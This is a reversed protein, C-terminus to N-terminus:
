SKKKSADSFNIDNDVQKKFPSIFGNRLVNTILVWIKTKPDNLDGEIPIKTAFTDKPKNKLVFGFFGIIGEWVHKVLNSHPQGATDQLKIDSFMPKFYGKLYGKNIAFESFFNFQGKTFDFGAISRSADNLATVNSNRLALNVDMDPIENLLNMNATVDLSGNGFSKGHLQLTSPLVKSRDVVNGMNTAVLRIDKVSLDIDPSEVIDAYLFQGDEVILRNITIPVLKKLATTWDNKQPTEEKSLTNATVYYNFRPHLMKIKSVIKGHFIASWQISIDTKPFDLMPKDNGNKFLRLGNIVYAGRILAIDIDDVHGHYGPIHNLVRNNVYNRVLGPLLLRFVILVAVVAMIIIGKKSRLFSRVKKRNWKM